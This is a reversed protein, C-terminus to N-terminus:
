GYKYLLDMFFNGSPFEIDILIESMDYYDAMRKEDAHKRVAHLIIKAIIEDPLDNISSTM